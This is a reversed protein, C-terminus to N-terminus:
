GASPVSAVPELEKRGWPRKHPDELVISCVDKDAFRDTGTFQMNNMAGAVDFFFPDSRWGAFMRYEGFERVQAERGMSVPSGQIIVKGQEGRGAAEPGEARRVTATMEGKGSQSFRVRYAIDAVMDGNTDVRLEYLAEPAFPEATTPEPPDFANSPHVNMIVISKNADGPKPFAFLDTLDSVPTERAFGFKPGSYHHSM